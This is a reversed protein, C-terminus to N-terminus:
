NKHPGHVTKFKRTLIRRNKVAREFKLAQRSEHNKKALAVRVWQPKDTIAIHLLYRLGLLFHELIVFLLVWGVESYEPRYARVQPSLCLLGCNTMISLAGLAEFAKQWAGIDKVRKGMPRQYVVCLKFADARIELVNNFVAWFAAIPYVSSFLVVYGFQIFMELYDDYTGEYDDLDGEEDADKIRQDDEPIEPVAALPAYESYERQLTPRGTKQLEARKPVGSIINQIELVKVHYFKIVLPIIAEQVNNIAQTIILMTAVQSRLMDMDQLIFAIYFLSMFNNVFEFLILKTVRHRDYQSQTRHNEWETLYTALRRYYSDMLFVLCTYVISPLPVLIPAWEWESQKLYAEAWFSSLMIFFAGLLCLGVIPLSGCYMKFNTKIRPYQPSMKGTVEDIAMHGQFNPRPEDMSTMGITGWQFALENSKRKWVELFVTVWVVNFVCFFPVAEAGILLQVCGLFLPILLATTYFGLFTFYLCIAEGFYERIEAFPQTRFFTLYWSHGLKKLLERDHLPYVKSVIGKGLCVQLVSQGEYLDINPYGPIFNDEALARINELEHRVIKQRETVTLLDETHMGEALFEELDNVVFERMVGHKDMKVIEMEEAAELFKIQSASIHLVIGDKINYPQRMVILEAGGDRRKGKIRDVLWVLTREPIDAAIRVVIYSRPLAHGGSTEEFNIKQVIDSESLHLNHSSMHGRLKNLEDHINWLTNISDAEDTNAQVDPDAMEEQDDSDFHDLKEYCVNCEKSQNMNKVKNNFFHIKMNKRVKHRKTKHM